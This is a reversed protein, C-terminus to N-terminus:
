FGYRVIHPFNQLFLLSKFIECYCIKKNEEEKFKEFANKIVSNKSFENM